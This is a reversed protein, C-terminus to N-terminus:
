GQDSGKDDGGQEGGEPPKPPPKPGRGRGGPGGMGGMASMMTGMMKGQIGGYKSRAEDKAAVKGSDIDAALGKVDEAETKWAGIMVDMIKMQQDDMPGSPQRKGPGAPSDAFWFGEVKKCPVTKEEPK